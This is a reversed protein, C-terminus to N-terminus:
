LPARRHCHGCCRITKGNPTVFDTVKVSGCASCGHESTKAPLAAEPPEEPSEVPMGEAQLKEILRRLKAVQRRLQQNEARLDQLEKAKAQDRKEKHQAM